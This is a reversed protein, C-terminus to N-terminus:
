RTNADSGMIDETINSVGQDITDGIEGAMGQSSTNETNQTSSGNTEDNSSTNDTINDTTNNGNTDSATGNSTGNTIGSSNSDLNNNDTNNDTSSSTNNTNDMITGNEGNGIKGRDGCGGMFATLCVMVALALILCIKKM